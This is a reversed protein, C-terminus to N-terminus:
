GSVISEDEGPKLWAGVDAQSEYKHTLFTFIGALNDKLESWATIPVGQAKYLSIELKNFHSKPRFQYVIRMVDGIKILLSKPGLYQPFLRSTSYAVALLTTFVPLTFKFRM